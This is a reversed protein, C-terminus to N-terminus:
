IKTSESHFNLPQRVDVLGGGKPKPFDIMRLINSMCGIGKESFKTQASKINVKSVKGDGEIRFNLDVIGKIKESQEQLEQQYCFKFQALYEGLIKRLIEPDISGLIVTDSQVFASDIGKKNALGKTTTSRDYNGFADKGGLHGSGDGLGSPARYDGTLNNGKNGIGVGGSLGLSGEKSAGSTLSMKSSNGMLAKLGRGKFEYGKVASDGLAATGSNPSSLPGNKASGAKSKQVKQTKTQSPDGSVGQANSTVVKAGAEARSLVKEIQEKKFQVKKRYSESPTIFNMKISSLKEKIPAQIESQPFKMLFLFFHLIFSTIIAKNLFRKSSEDKKFNRRPLILKSTAATMRDSGVICNLNIKKVKM